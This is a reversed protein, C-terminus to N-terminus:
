GNNVENAIWVHWDGSLLLQLPDCWETPWWRHKEEELVMIETGSRVEDM